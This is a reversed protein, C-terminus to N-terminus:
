MLDAITGTFFSFSDAKSLELRDIASRRAELTALASLALTISENLEGTVQARLGDLFREAVGRAEETQKRQAALEARFEKGASAVFIASVGRERQLEHILRGAAEAAQALRGLEAMEARTNWKLSLEYGALGVFVLLPVAVALALRQSIRM